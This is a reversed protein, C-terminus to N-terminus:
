VKPSDYPEKWIRTWMRLNGSKRHFQSIEAGIMTCNPCMWYIEDQKWAKDHHCWDKGDQTKM